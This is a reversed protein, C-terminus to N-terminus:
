KGGELEIKKVPCRSQQKVGCVQLKLMGAAEGESKMDLARFHGSAEDICTVFYKAGSISSVHMVELDGHIVAGPKVEVHTRLLTPINKM